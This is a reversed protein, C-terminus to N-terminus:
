ASVVRSVQGSNALRRFELYAIEVIVNTTANLVNAGNKIEIQLNGNNNIGSIEMVPKSSVPPAVSHTATKSTQLGDFSWAKNHGPDAPNSPVSVQKNEYYSLNSSFRHMANGRKGGTLGSSETGCANSQGDEILDEEDVFPVRCRFRDPDATDEGYVLVRVIPSRKPFITSLQVQFTQDPNQFPHQSPIYTYRDYRERGMTHSGFPPRPVMAGGKMKRVTGWVQFESYQVDAAATASNSWKLSDTSLKFEIRMENVNKMPLEKFSPGTLRNMFVHIMRTPPTASPGIEVCSFCGTGDLVATGTEAYHHNDRDKTTTGHETLLLEKFTSQIETIGCLEVIIVGNIYIRFEEMSPFISPWTCLDSTSTVKYCFGVNTLVASPDPRKLTATILSGDHRPNSESVNFQVEQSETDPSKVIAHSGSAIAKTEILHPM